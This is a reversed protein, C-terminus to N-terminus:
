GRTFRCGFWDRGPARAFAGTELTGAEFAHRIAERQEPTIVADCSHLARIHDAGERLLIAAPHDNAQEQRTAEADMLTVLHTWRM